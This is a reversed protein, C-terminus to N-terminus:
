KVVGGIIEVTRGEPIKESSVGHIVRKGPYAHAVILFRGETGTESCKVVTAKM